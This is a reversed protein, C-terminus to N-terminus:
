NRRVVWVQRNGYTPPGGTFDSYEEEVVFGALEFLYTMEQRTAWRLTHTAEDSEVLRGARDIIQFRFTEVVTQSFPDNRRAVSRRHYEYGTAPDIALRDPNPTDAGPACAELIPDFVDVILRAGPELHRYISTLCSRQESPTTLHQFTSFPILALAFTQGIDFEVINSLLFRLNASTASKSRGSKSSATEIM